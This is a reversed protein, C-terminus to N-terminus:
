EKDEIIELFEPPQWPLQRVRLIYSGGKPAVFPLNFVGEEDTENVYTTLPERVVLREVRAVRQEVSEVREEVFATYTHVGQLSLRAPQDPGVEDPQIPKINGIAIENIIWVTARQFLPLLKKLPNTEPLKEPNFMTFWTGLGRYELFKAKRKGVSTKVTFEEILPATAGNSQLKQIQRATTVHLADECIAAIPWFRRGDPLEILPLKLDGFGRVPALYYKFEDSSYFRIDSM